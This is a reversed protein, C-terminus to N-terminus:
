WGSNGDYSTTEGVGDFRDGGSNYIYSAVRYVNVGIIIKSLGWGFDLNYIDYIGYVVSGVGCTEVLHRKTRNYLNIM